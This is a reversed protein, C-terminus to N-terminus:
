ADENDYSTATDVHRYGSNLAEAVLDTCEAGKLTWTGLGLAPIHAGNAAISHMHNEGSLRHSASAHCALPRCVVCTGPLRRICSGRGARGDRRISAISMARASARM